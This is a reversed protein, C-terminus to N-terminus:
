RITRRFIPRDAKRRAVEKFGAKIFTSAKGTFMGAAEKEENVDKPYGEVIKAGHKKAYEVAAKLLLVSFGKNRHQKDVFFCTISWVEKDDVPKLITSHALKAYRSRPEVAVWGVPYGDHYAVLGPKAGSDVIAKQMQRAKDGAVKEFEKGRLKWNMCWCGACAGRAGFLIEFDRWLKQTLPHFTLLPKKPM